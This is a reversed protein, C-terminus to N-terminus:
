LGAVELQVLNLRGNAKGRLVLLEGSLRWSQCPCQSLMAPPLPQPAAAAGKLYIIFATPSLLRKRKEPDLLVTLPVLVSGGRRSAPMLKADQRHPLRRAQRSAAQLVDPALCLEAPDVLHRRGKSHQLMNFLLIGSCYHHDQTTLWSHTDM